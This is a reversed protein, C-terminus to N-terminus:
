NFLQDMLDDAEQESILETSARGRSAGKFLPMGALFMETPVMEMVERTSVTEQGTEKDKKKTKVKRVNIDYYGEEMQAKYEEESIEGSELLSKLEQEYAEQKLKMVPEALAKWLGNVHNIFNQEQGEKCETFATGFLEIAFDKRTKTCIRKGDVETLSKVYLQKFKSIYDAKDITREGKPM